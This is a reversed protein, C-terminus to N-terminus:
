KLDRDRFIHLGVRLRNGNTQQNQHRLDTAKLAARLLWVQRKNQRSQDIARSASGTLWIAGELRALDEPAAHGVLEKLRKLRVHMTGPSQKM